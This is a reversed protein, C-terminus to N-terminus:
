GHLSCRHSYLDRLLGAEGGHHIVEDLVLLAV